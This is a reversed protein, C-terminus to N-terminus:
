SFIHIKIFFVHFFLFNQNKQFIGCKENESSKKHNEGWVVEIQIMKINRNKKILKLKNKRFFVHINFFFDNFFSFKSKKSFDWIKWKDFIKRNNEGEVVEIQIM